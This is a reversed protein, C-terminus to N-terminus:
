LTQIPKLSLLVVESCLNVTRSIELTNVKNMWYCIHISMILLNTYVTLKSVVRSYKLINSLQCQLISRNLKTCRNCCYFFSFYYKKWGLSICDVLSPNKGLMVWLFKRELMALCWFFASLKKEYTWKKFFWYTGQEFYMTSNRPSDCLISFRKM